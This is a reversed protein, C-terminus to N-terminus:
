SSGSNKIPAAWHCGTATARDFLKKRQLQKLNKQKKELKIQKSKQLMKRHHNEHQEVQLIEVPLEAVKWCKNYDTAMAVSCQKCMSVGSQANWLGASSWFFVEFASWNLYLIYLLLFIFPLFSSTKVMKGRSCWASHSIGTLHSLHTTASVKTLLLITNKSPHCWSCTRSELMKRRPNQVISPPLTTFTPYSHKCRKNVASPINRPIHSHLLVGSTSSIARLIGDMTVESLEGWVGSLAARVDDDCNSGPLLCSVLANM